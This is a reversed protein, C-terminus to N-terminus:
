YEGQLEKIMLKEEGPKGVDWDRFGCKTYISIAKKNTVRVELVIWKMEKAKAIVCAEKLLETGIGIGQFRFSVAFMTIFARKSKKDNAYFAIYGVCEKKIM